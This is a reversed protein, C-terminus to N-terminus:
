EVVAVNGGVIAALEALAKNRGARYQELEAPTLRGPHEPSWEASMASVSGRKAPPFTLTCEYRGVKFTRILPSAIDSM